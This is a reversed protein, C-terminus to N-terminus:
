RNRKSFVHRLVIFAMSFTLAMGAYVCTLADM